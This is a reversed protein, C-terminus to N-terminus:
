TPTFVVILRLQLKKVARKQCKDGFITMPKESIVDKGSRLAALIVEHHIYDPTSVIVTDCDIERLMKKYDTYIPIDLNVRQRALVAREQNIDCLAVLEVVDSHNKNMPELFMYTGRYGLGVIAYRKKLDTGGM